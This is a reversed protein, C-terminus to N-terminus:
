SSSDQNRLRELEARMAALQATLEELEVQVTPDAVPTTAGSPSAPGSNAYPNSKQALLTDVFNRAEQETMEGKAAWEETLQGFDSNLKSLNEERKLPDQLSEVLATTAGLTVRFGKQAIQILNDPNM